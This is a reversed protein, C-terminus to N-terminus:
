KMSIRIYDKNVHSCLYKAKEIEFQENSWAGSAKAVETYIYCMPGLGNEIYVSEKNINNNADILIFPIRTQHILNNLDCEVHKGSYYNFWHVYSVINPTSVSISLVMGFIGSSFETIKCNMQIPLSGDLIKKHNNIDEKILFFTELGLVNPNGKSLVKLEGIEMSQGIQKLAEKMPMKFM